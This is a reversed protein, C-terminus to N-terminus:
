SIDVKRLPVGPRQQTEWGDVLGFEVDKPALLQRGSVLDAAREALMITPANLNGNPETPFVSSDIVRLGELGHVRLESDVVAMEDEGMKCSGCPHYTSELNERIFADIQDDTKVDAGPSIEGDVYPDMAPQGIIERTLRVCKRFGERDAETSLYNFQISPHTEPDASVVRIHGRSTPKNPGTLIM